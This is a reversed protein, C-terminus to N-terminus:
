EEDGGEDNNEEEKPEEILLPNIEVSLTYGKSEFLENFVQAVLKRQELRNSMGVSSLEDGKNAEDVVLREKKDSQVYKLGYRKLLRGEQFDFLESLEKGLYPVQIPFVNFAKELNISKDTYIVPENDHKKKWINKFTLLSDEDGSFVAPTKLNDLNVDIAGDINVMRKVIYEVFFTDAMALSNNRMLVSNSSDLEEQYNVGIATWRIPEGYVNLGFKSATKLAYVVNDKPDVYITGIGNEFLMREILRSLPTLKGNLKWLFINTVIMKWYNFLDNHLGTSM